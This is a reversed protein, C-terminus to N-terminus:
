EAWSTASSSPIPHVRTARCCTGSEVVAFGAEASPADLRGGTEPHRSEHRLLALLADVLGLGAPSEVTAPYDYEPWSRTCATGTLVRRVRRLFPVPEQAPVPLVLSVYLGAAPLRYDVDAHELRPAKTDASPRRTGPKPWPQRTM